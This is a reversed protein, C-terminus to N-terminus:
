MRPEQITYFAELPSKKQARFFLLALPNNLSEAWEMRTRDFIYAPLPKRINYENTSHKFAFARFFPRTSSANKLELMMKLWKLAEKGSDPGPLTTEM